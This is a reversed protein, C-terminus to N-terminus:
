MLQRHCGIATHGQELLEAMSAKNQTCSANCIQLCRHEDRWTCSFGFSFAFAQSQASIKSKGSRALRQRGLHIKLCFECRTSDSSTSFCLTHLHIFLALEFSCKPYKAKSASHCMAHAKSSRMGALGYAEFQAGAGHAQPRSGFDHNPSKRQWAVNTADM